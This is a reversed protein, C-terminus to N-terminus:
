LTWLDGEGRGRGKNGDEDADDAGGGCPDHRPSEDISEAALERLMRDDVRPIEVADPAQQGVSIGREYRIHRALHQRRCGPESPHLARRDANTVHEEGFHD